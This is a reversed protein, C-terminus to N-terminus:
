FAEISEILKRGQDIVASEPDLKSVVKMLRNVHDKFGQPQHYLLPMQSMLGWMEWEIQKICIAAFHSDKIELLGEDDSKQFWVHKHPYLYKWFEPLPTKFLFDDSLDQYSLPSLAEKLLRNDVHILNELASVVDDKSVSSNFSLNLIRFHEQWKKQRLHPFRGLKLHDAFIMRLLFVIKDLESEHGVGLYRGLEPDRIREYYNLSSEFQALNKMEYFNTEGIFPYIKKHFNLIKIIAQLDDRRAHANFFVTIDLDSVGFVFNGNKYSNRAWLEVGKLTSASSKLSNLALRYPYGAVSRPLLLDLSYFFNDRVITLSAV